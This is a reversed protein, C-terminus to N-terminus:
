ATITVRALENTFVADDYFITTNGVTNTFEGAAITFNDGGDLMLTLTGTGSSIGLLSRAAAATMNSLDGNVGLETLSIMEVESLAGVLQALTVNVGSQLYVQDAGAGGNVVTGPTALSAVDILLFDNGNGGFLLLRAGGAGLITDNGEEGYITDAGGSGGIFDDGGSGQIINSSSNGALFDDHSSGYINEFGSIADQGAGFTDQVATTALDIQVGSTANAYSVTDIGAGGVLTDNGAGGEIGDNGDGGDISDNGDRGVLVNDGANGVIGDAYDSGEINEINILSDLGYGTNQPSTVTLNVTIGNPSSLFSFYDLGPGGDVTDNGAAGYIIDDGQLGAIHSGEVAAAMTDGGTTGVSLPVSDSVHIRLTATSFLGGADTARVVIDHFTATEFDLLAGNAVTVAGTTPDIAFRGGANSDLSYTLGGEPDAATVTMVASGNAANETVSAELASFATVAVSDLKTGNGDVPGGTERFELTNTGNGSGALIFTGHTTFPAGAALSRTLILTGGFFVSMETASGGTNAIAFALTYVEGATLGTVVQSIGMYGPSEELDLSVSGSSPTKALEWTSGATRNWGVITDATYHGVDSAGTFREFSGNVVYDRAAAVSQVAPTGPGENVNMVTVTVTQSAQNVGDSASVIVTHVNDGGVDGPTEFDPPNRFSLAGTVPDIQFLAQDAGGTIAYSVGTGDPDTASITAVVTSGETVLANLGPGGAMGPTENVNNVTIALIQTDTLVGDSVRVEVDYVNNAGADAPMEFNPATAFSLAGTASDITFRGADAGGAISWTLTTGVDPDGAAFTMVATANEGLSLAASVAGGNSSIVPAENVNNVTLTLAVDTFLGGQDTVRVTVGHSAATERDLLAGNAVTIQGSTPNIAFRGGADGGPTFSYTLVAGADPDSGTVTGVPTGNAAGENVAGGALSAGAPAENLNNVTIALTQTDTLTGDSVQVIVDYVNNAGSDTPGEFNPPAAFSLAGTGADIVFRGADAGGAISWTLTTGTDPDSAAFTMVTAGNENVALAASTAGGNSAIVPAENLDLVPIGFTRDFTLGGSDTVRVTILHSTAAEHDLLSGNAVTIAGTTASIAFRGGADGGPAFSYTLTEGLDPDVGTATGVVTGNAVNEFVGTTTLNINTPADNADGVTISITQTDVLTGDSVQVTVVYINDLDADTPTERDPASVFRLAGTGADITFLAADAGGLISWNLSAGADPDTATMTVVATQNEPMALAATAGGGNSTIAPAENVNTLTIAFARDLFLGGQDTVRVTVGHSAAAEFDLLSGNAVTIQGGSSIAFRGGANGGPAFSFTLTAGADQDTGTVTGVVTGNAANEAVSSGTLAASVPAENVNTVTVAIDQTDTLSGDSVRITVNYVNNAGVDAPAEFNPASVFSLLGSTSNITFRAADAGGAISWTRTAGADPDTATMTGVNLGNEAIGTSATAGGGLSTITPAENQNTVQVNITQTDVLAGDSVEVIVQYINDLNADNPAEFNPNSAFALAGTATDIVFRGADAGGAIRFSLASGADEDTATVTTVATGNEVRAVSASAGGGDSTIRPAEAVDGVTITLTQDDTYQGDTVRVTVEYTNTGAASGPTEFDPASVFSLAGTLPVVAFRAADAGGVISYVLTTGPDPDAGVVTAVATQNEDISRAATDGGGDSVIRPAENQNTVTVRILQTDALQGDSVLIEVEYVGDGNSDTPTEVDPADVFTLQGTAPNIHFHASDAGGSILYVLTSGADPDSASVTTVGTQNEIVFLSAIAGGGDSVIVPPENRNGVVITLAQTDTLSGDSVRVIVEYANDGDADAPTEYDPQSIFQLVGTSPNIQFRAADVGGLISYTLVTGSDPDTATTTTVFIDGENLAVTATDGGGNSTIVPPDNRDTVQIVFSKTLTLGGSDTVTVVLLHFPSAEFNFSAGPAVTLAGTAADIAFRGGADGGTAFGYTLTDGSDPDLGAVTGVLDGAVATEDVVNGTLVADTPAENVNGVVVTLTQRDYATGDSAEVEVVYANDGDSDTPNEFDPVAVLSLTGSVPDISFRAADAGGVIRYTIVTGLDSDNAAVATVATVGEDLQITATDGGGDSVIVPPENLDNVFIDFARTLSLGAADTVTVVVLYSGATEFDFSAGPAVTIEGTAADILFRGGADGSPAFTYSLTDGADPDSGTVTGVRDGAVSAESVTNGALTVSFPTENRNAVTVHITQRDDGAGDSARVEVEFVADGDADVPTDHDPPQLFRLVGTVADITFHAADAGGSISYALRDSQDADVAMVTTVAVENEPVEVDAVDGGGNSIIAPADNSDRIEVLLEREVALGRRDTAVVSIRHVYESEHDLLGADKLTVDGTVSDIEFRGEADGDVGFSYTVGDGRDPDVAQFRAALTGAAAHESIAISEADVFEPAENVDRVSVSLTQKAEGGKADIASVTVSYVADTEKPDEFDATEVFYLHGTASNIAFRKADAGGTIAYHLDSSDPDTGQVITVARGNEDLALSASAGGGDSTIRPLINPVVPPPRPTTEAPVAPSLVAAASASQESDIQNSRRIFRGTTLDLQGSDDSSQVASSRTPAPTLSASAVTPLQVVPIGNGPAQPPPQQPGQQQAGQQQDQTLSRSLALNPLQDSLQVDDVRAFFGQPTVEGDEFSLRPANPGLVRLAMGPLIIKGGDEFVMVIDVDMVAVRMSKSPFKMRLLAAHSAEAVIVAGAAPREIFRTAQDEAPAPSTAAGPTLQETM